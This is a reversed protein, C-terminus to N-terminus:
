KNKRNLEAAKQMPLYPHSREIRKLLESSKFIPYATKFRRPQNKEKRIIVLFYNIKETGDRLPVKFTGVYYFTTWFEEREEYIEKTNDITHKLWPIRKGRTEDYNKPDVEHKGTKPNKYLFKIGDLPFMIKNKHVDKIEGEVNKEYYDLAEQEPFNGGFCAALQDKVIFTSCNCYHYDLLIFVRTFDIKKLRLPRKKRRQRSSQGQLKRKEKYYLVRIADYAISYFMQRTTDSLYNSLRYLRLFDDLIKSRVKKVEM